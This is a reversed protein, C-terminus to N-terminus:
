SDRQSAYPPLATAARYYRLWGVAAVALVGLAMGQGNSVAEGFWSEILWGRTPDDRFHEVVLRGLPFATLFVLCILGRRRNPLRRLALLMVFVGFWWMAEYLQTPHVPQGLPGASDSDTFTVAWAVDAPRGYCCGAFFCGIRGLVMGIALVPFCVDLVDVASVRRVRCWVLVAPIVLVFGGFFALGGDGIDLISSPADEFSAWNARVYEARGGLVGGFFTILFIDLAFGNPMGAERGWVRGLCLAVIASLAVFAGYSSMRAGEGFELLVPHM